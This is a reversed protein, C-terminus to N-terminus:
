PSSAITHSAQYSCIELCEAGNIKTMAKKGLQKNVYTAM